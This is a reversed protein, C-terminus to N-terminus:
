GTRRLMAEVRQATVRPRSFDEWTLRFMSYGTLERLRDERRKEAFVADAASQGPRLLRGYKAKGDFEGLMRLDPWGWDCIGVLEGDADRVTFQVIPAPIGFTWFLWRGRSEGPSEAGADAMLVPITLRRTFPWAQMSRFQRELEEHTCKGLHLLSDFSVLAAEPAARSGAEIACRQASLVRRGGVEVLDSDLCFGEHHVVDAETRGAGGDLRTVHVRDLPIGWTAVGHELLGTVGSLVVADGLSDAVAHARALHRGEPSLREWIDVYTYYGRRIRHWVGGRVLQTVAKDGYGVERATARTCFGRTDALHRLPDM